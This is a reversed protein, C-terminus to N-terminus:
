SIKYKKYRCLELGPPFPGALIAGWLGLRELGDLLISGMMPVEDKEASSPKAGLTGFFAEYTWSKISQLIMSCM